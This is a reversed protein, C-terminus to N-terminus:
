SKEGHRYSFGYKNQRSIRKAAADFINDYSGLWEINNDIKIHARWKGVKKDWCVGCVGSTSNKYLGKNKTNLSRDCAQLNEWRNDHRVGNIHDVEKPTSGTMYLFALRHAQYNKKGTAISVYGLQKNVYGAREGRKLWTFTGTIPDYHLISKIYSQQLEM